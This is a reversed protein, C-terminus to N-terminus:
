LEGLDFDFEDLATGTRGPASKKKKRDEPSFSISGGGIDIDDLQLDELGDSDTGGTPEFFMNSEKDDPASESDREATEPPALDSLDIGDFDITPPPLEAEEAKEEEDEEQFAGPIFEIGEAFEEEVEDGSVDGDVDDTIGLELFEEDSEPERQPDAEAAEAMDPVEAAAEEPEEDDYSIHLFSPPKIKYGVGNLETSISSIDKGCKGCTESHDFSIYGCKPCRM